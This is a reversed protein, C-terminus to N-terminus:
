DPTQIVGPLRALSAEDSKKRDTDVPLSTLQTHLRRAENIAMQAATYVRVNVMADLCTTFEQAYSRDALPILSAFQHCVGLRVETSSSMCLTMRNLGLKLGRRSCLAGHAQHDFDNTLATWRHRSLVLEAVVYSLEAATDESGPLNPCGVVDVISRFRLPVLDLNPVSLFAWLGSRSVPTKLLHM